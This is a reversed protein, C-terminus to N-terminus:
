ATRTERLRRRQRMWLAVYPARCRYSCWQRKAWNARGIRSHWAIQRGCNRCFKAEPETWRTM